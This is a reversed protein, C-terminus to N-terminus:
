SPTAHLFPTRPGPPRDAGPRTAALILDPEDTDLIDVGNRALDWSLAASPAFCQVGFGAAHAEACADVTCHMWHQNLIDAHAARGAHTADILRASYNIAAKLGPNREKVRKIHRHDFCIINVEEVTGTRELLDVIADPLAPWDQPLGKIEITLYARHDVFAIVEDLTPIREGAFRAGFWAGADLRRLEAMTQEHVYGTGNTTRDVTHDHMIVLERDRSFHVDLELMDAERRLGDAFSALTNEPAYAAGGRHAGILPRGGRRAAIVDRLPEVRTM